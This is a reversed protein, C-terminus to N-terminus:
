KSLYRPRNSYIIPKKLPVEEGRFKRRRIPGVVEHLWLLPITCTFVLVFVPAYKGMYADRVRGM